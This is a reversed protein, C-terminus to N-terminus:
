GGQMATVVEIRDGDAVSTTPWAGRPVVDGNLAVAIGTLAGTVIAVADALSAGASLQHTRGNLQVTM